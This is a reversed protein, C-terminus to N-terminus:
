ERSCALYNTKGRETAEDVNVTESGLVDLVGRCSLFQTTKECTKLAADKMGELANKVKQALSVSVDKDSSSIGCAELDAAPFGEGLPLVEGAERIKDLDERQKNGRKSIWAM